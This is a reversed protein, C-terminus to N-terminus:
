AAAEEDVRVLRGSDLVLTRDIVPAITELDHTVVVVARGAARAETLLGVFWDRAAADLGTTPEDLLWADAEQVLLRALALRQVMGRSYTRAARHAALGLGVEELRAELAGTDASRDYLRAFFRLNELGTLEGYVFPRHGLVGLRRRIVVADSPAHLDQGFAELRGETPRLTGALVALATSKGAGNHGVLATLTGAEFGASFHRLAWRRGFRRSVDVAELLVDAM